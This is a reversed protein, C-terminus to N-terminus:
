SYLLAVLRPDSLVSDLDNCAGTSCERQDLEDIKDSPFELVKISSSSSKTNKQATSPSISRKSSISGAVSGCSGNCSRSKSSQNRINQREKSKLLINQATLDDVKEKKEKDSGAHMKSLSGYRDISRGPKRNSRSSANEAGLLNSSSIFKPQALRSYDTRAPGKPNESSNSHVSENDDVGISKAEANESTQTKLKETSISTLLKSLGSMQRRTGGLKVPNFSINRTSSEKKLKSSTINNKRGRGSPHHQKMAEQIDSMAAEVTLDVDNFTDEEAEDDDDVVNTEYVLPYYKEFRMWFADSQPSNKIDIYFQKMEWENHVNSVVFESCALTSLRKFSIGPKAKLTLRWDDVALVADVLFSFETTWGLLKYIPKFLHQADSKDWHSIHENRYAV